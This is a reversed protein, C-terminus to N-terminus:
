QEKNIQGVSVLSENYADSFGMKLIKAKIEKM